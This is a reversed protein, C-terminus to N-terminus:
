PSILTLGTVGQIQSQNSSSFHHQFYSICFKNKDAEFQVLQPYKMLGAFSELENGFLVLETQSFTQYEILSRGTFVLFQYHTM